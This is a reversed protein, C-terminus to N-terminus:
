YKLPSLSGVKIVKERTDFRITDNGLYFDRITKSLAIPNKEADTIELFIRGYKEWENNLQPVTLNNLFLVAINIAGEDSNFGSIWPVNAAAKREYVSSPLEDLFAGTHAKEIVPGFIVVPYM